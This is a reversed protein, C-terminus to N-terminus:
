PNIWYAVKLLLASDPRDELLSGLDRGLRFDGPDSENAQNQTWVLYLTSGPLYEWRLVANARLSKFNFDPNPIFFEPAPGTGDPDATYGGDASSLTSGDRGYVNFSYTGPQALEKFGSYTGVSVLPQLFLQLSLRPTFTWDLRISASVERQDITGFVYRSGYTAGAAPDVTTQVWQADTVDRFFQPALSLRVGASPKWELGAAAYVVFGGSESRGAAVEVDGVLKERDDSSVEINAAYDPVTVMGPGGRTKRSDWYAPTYLVNGDVSWYNMFQTNYFLFLGEGTRRGSYEYDQFYALRFGKRRFVGDPEFWQYGGVLHSNIKDTRFSFGLDNVEFGPSLTGVAANFKWNGEQKNVAMRGGFGTLSTASSDVGLRPEDPRQYYRLPSRQVTIM